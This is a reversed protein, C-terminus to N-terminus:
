HLGAQGNGNTKELYSPLEAPDVIWQCALRMAANFLLPGQLHPRISKQERDFSVMILVVLDETQKLGIASTQEEPVRYKFGMHEAPCVLFAVHADETAQLWRFPGQRHELLVYHKLQEFGPIGWPFHIFVSEELDLLGFRSTEIRM